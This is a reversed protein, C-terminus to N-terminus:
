REDQKEKIQVLAEVIAPFEVLAREISEIDFSQEFKRLMGAYDILRQVKYDNGLQLIRSEFKEIEGVKMVGTFHDERGHLKKKTYELYGSLKDYLLNMNVPKPLYDDFGAELVNSDDVHEALASLVIIPIDRTNPNERLKKSAEIGDMVPMRIDMLIIQPQFEGPLLLAQQGNEATLVDADAESLLERFLKRNSEVDDVVLIKANNFSINMMNFPEDEVEPAAASFIDVDWLAIEFVPGVGVTSKVTYTREHDRLTKQM